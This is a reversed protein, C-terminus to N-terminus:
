TPSSRPATSPCAPTTGRRAATDGSPHSVGSARARARIGPSRGSGPSTAGHASARKALDAGGPKPDGRDQRIGLKAVIGRQPGRPMAGPNRVRHANGRVSPTKTRGGASRRAAPAGRDRRGAGSRGIKGAPARRLETAVSTAAHGAVAHRDIVHRLAGAARAHVARKAACRM